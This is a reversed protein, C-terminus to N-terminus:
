RKNFLGERSFEIPGVMGCQRQKQGKSVDRGYNFAVRRISNIDAKESAIKMNDRNSHMQLIAEGIAAALVPPVANGIQRWQQSITGFFEFDAPFTQIAAAERATLYRNEHPHYYITRSTNITPSCESFSLRKLKAERFRKESIVNWDVDFWLEKPLYQKEDREYRVGKGEPIHRIRGRELENPIQAKDFEHNYSKNGFYILNDFAWKVTRPPPLSSNESENDKFKKEPFVNDVGYKNCIFITRRRREPAGYHHASLVRVSVHYGLNEFSEMVALLTNENKRALLGTVNEMIIYSPETRKVIRVFELFLHNRSDDADGPGVTSFGQCPPGGCVVDVKKNDVAKFIRDSSIKRLDDSITRAKPHNKAFTKMAVKDFDVGLLCEFGVMELGCSIGGAGAFLDIVTLKGM